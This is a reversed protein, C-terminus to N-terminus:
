CENSLSIGEASQRFYSTFIFLLSSIPVACQPLFPSLHPAGAQNGAHHSFLARWEHKLPRGSHNCLRLLASNGFHDSCVIFGFALLIRRFIYGICAESERQLHGFENTTLLYVTVQQLMAESRRFATLLSKNNKQKRCSNM